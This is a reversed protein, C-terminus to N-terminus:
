DQENVSKVFDGLIKRAAPHEEMAQKMADIIDAITGFYSIRTSGGDRMILLYTSGDAIKSIKNTKDKLTM